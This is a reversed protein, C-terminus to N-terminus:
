IKQFSTKYIRQEINQNVWVKFSETENRLLLFENKHKFIWATRIEAAEKRM